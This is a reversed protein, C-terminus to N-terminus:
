FGLLTKLAKVKEPCAGTAICSRYVFRQQGNRYVEVRYPKGLMQTHVYIAFAEAFDDFLNTAGYLSPFDTQSLDRFLGEATSLPLKAKDFSYYSLESFRPFREAWRSVMKGEETLRWSVALFPSNRTEEPTGEADWWGHAALALGLVHGLEHLFIFRIASEETDNGPSELVMRIEHGAEPRFASQEKWAGWANATRTLATLNLAIYAYKWRGQADQVAETTGTGWDNELLFFAVLHRATLSRIRKPLAAVMSRTKAVLPHDPRAMTPRTDQGYQLNIQHQWDLLAETGLSIREPLPKELAGPYNSLRQVPAPSGATCAALLLALAGAVVLIALSRKIQQEQRKM